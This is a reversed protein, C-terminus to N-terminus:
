IYMFIGGIMVRNVHNNLIDYVVHKQRKQSDDFRLIIEPVFLQFM